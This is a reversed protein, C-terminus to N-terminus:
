QMKGNETHDMLVLAAQTLGNHAFDFGAERLAMEVKKRSPPESKLSCKLSILITTPQFQEQCFLPERCHNTISFTM